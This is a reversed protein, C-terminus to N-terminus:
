SNREKLIKQFYPYTFAMFLMVGIICLLLTLSLQECHYVMYVCCGSIIGADWMLQYTNYGTGRECHKPLKIMVNLYQYMALPIGVGALLGSIYISGSGTNLIYVSVVLMFYGAVLKIRSDVKGLMDKPILLFVIFGAAICLYFFSDTEYGILTGLIFPVTLMNIGPLVNRLLIFRDLSLLSVHMPARFCVKIFSVLLYSLVNLASSIYILEELSFGSETYAGGFIGIVTGLVGSLAFALNAKNRCASPTVDIVLTSGTVMMAIGFLVGQLVRLLYFMWLEYAYPYAIGLVAFLLISTTCVNKRRFTDVLYNNFIGPLFMAVGFLGMSILVSKESAIGWNDILRSHLVPFLMYVGIYLMINSLILLVFNKNWFTNVNVSGNNMYVFYFYRIELFM